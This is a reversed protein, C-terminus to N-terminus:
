EKEKPRGRKKVVKPKKMRSTRMNEAEKALKSGPMGIRKIERTGFPTKVKIKGAKRIFKGIPTGEGKEIIAIDKEVNIKVGSENM